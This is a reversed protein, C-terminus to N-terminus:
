QMKKMTNVSHQLLSQVFNMLEGLINGKLLKRLDDVESSENFENLVDNM